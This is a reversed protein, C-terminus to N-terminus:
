KVFLEEVKCNFVKALKFALSLSPDTKGNEVANITQRSVSIERALDLQKLKFLARYKKINNM